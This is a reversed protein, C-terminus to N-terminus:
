HRRKMRREKRWGKGKVSMKAGVVGFTEVEKRVQVSGSEVEAYCHKITDQVPNLARSRLLTTAQHLPSHLVRSFPSVSAERIDSYRRPSSVSTPSRAAQETDRGRQASRRAFADRRAVQEGDGPM